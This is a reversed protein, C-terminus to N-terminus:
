AGRREGAARGGHVPLVGGGRKLFSARAPERTRPLSQNQDKRQPARATKKGFLHSLAEKKKKEM